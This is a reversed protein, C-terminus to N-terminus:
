QKEGFEKLEILMQKHTPISYNIDKRISKMSRDCKLSSDKKVKGKLGYVEKMLCLLDYKSIPKSALNVLGSVEKEYLDIIQKALELTTVGSWIVKTYGKVKKGKQKLFWEMLGKKHKKVEPGIISTRITLHYDDNVEGLAKSAGYFDTPSHKSDETYNGAKKSFGEPEGSFVCDTSIHILKSGNEKCIEALKHPFYSNVFTVKAKNKDTVLKNVIGICNIVLKPKLHRLAEELLELDRCVDFSRWYISKKISTKYVKYGGLSNIYIM